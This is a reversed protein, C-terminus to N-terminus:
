KFADAAFELPGNEAAARAVPDKEGSPFRVHAGPAARLVALLRHLDALAARAAVGGEVAAATRLTGLCVALARDSRCLRFERWAVGACLNALSLQFCLFQSITFCCTILFSDKENRM